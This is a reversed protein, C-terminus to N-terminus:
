TELGLKSVNRFCDSIINGCYTGWGRGRALRFKTGDNTDMFSFTCCVGSLRVMFVWQLVELGLAVPFAVWTRVPETLDGMAGDDMGAAEMSSSVPLPGEWGVSRASALIRPSPPSPVPAEAPASWGDAESVAAAVGGDVAQWEVLQGVAQGLYTIGALTGRYELICIGTMM